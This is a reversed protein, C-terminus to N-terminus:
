PYIVANRPKWELIESIESLHDIIFEPSLNLRRGLEKIALAKKVTSTDEKPM